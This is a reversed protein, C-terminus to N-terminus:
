GFLELIHEKKKKSMKSMMKQIKSDLSNDDDNKLSYLKSSKYIDKDTVSVYKQFQSITKHSSLKMITKYDMTGM